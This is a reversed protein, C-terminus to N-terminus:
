IRYVTNNSIKFKEVLNKRDLLFAALGKRKDDRMGTASINKTAAEDLFEEIWKEILGVNVKEKNEKHLNRLLGVDDKMVNKLNM